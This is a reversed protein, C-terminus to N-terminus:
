SSKCLQLVEKRKMKKINVKGSRAAWQIATDVDCGTRYMKNYIMVYVRFDAGVVLQDIRKLIASRHPKEQVKKAFKLAEEVSMGHEIGRYFKSYEALSKCFTRANKGDKTRFCTM